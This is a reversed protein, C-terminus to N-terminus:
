SPRRVHAALVAFMGRRWVVEPYLRCSRLMKWETDLPKYHDERRWGRSFALAQSRSYSRCLHGIWHREQARRLSPEAAPFCDAFILLGGHGLARRIRRYVSLKVKLSFIHHLALSTVVVDARPFAADEFRSHIL